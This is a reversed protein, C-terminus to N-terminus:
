IFNIWGFETWIWNELYQWHYTFLVPVPFLIEAQQSYSSWDREPKLRIIVVSLYITSICNPLPILFLSFFDWPLYIAPLSTIILYFSVQTRTNPFYPIDGHDIPELHCIRWLYFSEEALNVKVFHASGRHAELWLLSKGFPRQNMINILKFLMYNKKKELFTYVYIICSFGSNLPTSTAGVQIRIFRLYPMHSWVQTSYSEPSLGYWGPFFM